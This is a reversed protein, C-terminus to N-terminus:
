PQNERERRERGREGRRGRRERMESKLQQFQEWQEPTLVQQLRADTQKRIEAFKPESQKRLETIQTRTENFIKEVETQQETTLNLKETLANVRFLSPGGPGGSGPRQYLNLVLLGSVFGLVFIGFVSLWVVARNKTTKNMIM